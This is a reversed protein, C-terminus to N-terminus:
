EAVKLHRTTAPKAPIATLFPQGRLISNREMREPQVGIYHMTQRIDKHHLLAATAVLASEHGVKSKMMEYYARGVSRRITHFGEQDTSFGMTELSRKVIDYPQAIQKHPFLKYDLSRDEAGWRPAYNQQPVLFYDPHLEGVAARYHGLWRRLETDLEATIPMRDVDATKIIRVALYGTTLNVDSVRLEAIESARLGTNVAVAMAIRDRPSRAAEVLSLLEAPELIQRPAKAERRRGTMAVLPDHGMWGYAFCTATFRRMRSLYANFTSAATKHASGGPGFFKVDFLERTLDALPLNPGLTLLLANMAVRDNKHTNVSVKQRRIDLYRVAAELLTTPKM